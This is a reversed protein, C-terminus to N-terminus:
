HFLQFVYSSLLLSLLLSTTTQWQEKNHHHLREEILRMNIPKKLINRTRYTNRKEPNRNYSSILTTSRSPNRNYSPIEKRTLDQDTGITVLSKKGLTTIKIYEEKNFSVSINRRDNVSVGGAWM